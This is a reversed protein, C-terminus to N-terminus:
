KHILLSLSRIDIIYGCVRACIDMLYQFSQVSGTLLSSRPEKNFGGELLIKQCDFYEEIQHEFGTM